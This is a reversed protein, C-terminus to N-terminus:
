VMKNKNAKYQYLVIFLTSQSLLQNKSLYAVRLFDLHYIENASVGIQKKLM